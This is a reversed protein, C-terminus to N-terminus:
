LLNLSIAIWPLLAIAPPYERERDPFARKPLLTTTVPGTDNRDVDVVVFGALPSTEVFIAVVDHTFSDYAVLALGTRVPVGVAGVGAVAFLVALIAVVAKTFFLRM